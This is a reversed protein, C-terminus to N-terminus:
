DRMAAPCVPLLSPGDYPPPTPKPAPAPPPAVPQPAPNQYQANPGLELIFYNEEVGFRKFRANVRLPVKSWPNVVLYDDTIEIVGELGKASSLKQKVFSMILRRAMSPLPVMDAAWFNAFVIKLGNEPTPQFSLEIAFPFTILKRVEGRITVKEGAFVLRLGRVEVPANRRLEAQVAESELFSNILDANVRVLLRRVCIEAQEQIQALTGGVPLGEVQLHLDDVQVGELQGSAIKMERLQLDLNIGKQLDGSLNLTSAGLGLSNINNVVLSVIQELSLKM